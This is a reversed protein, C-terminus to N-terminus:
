KIVIIGANLGRRGNTYRHSFFIDHYKMTCLKTQYINRSKLGANVLILENLNWLNLMYRDRIKVTRFIEYPVGLRTLTIGKYEAPMGERYVSGSHIIYKFDDNQLPEFTVNDETTDLYPCEVMAKIVTEDVEYNEPGISPGIIAHINEPLCGYVEGMKEVTKAAIADVTGRWGAHVTGIVRSVPDALLIPVCDATYVILPINKVNTIQADIEFHSLDRSIGDGADKEEVVLINSKHVQNPASMRTYDFGMTAGLRQYNEMVDEKEDDLHLGMNLSEYIGKSVGGFKTTFGHQIFSMDSFGEVQIFPVGDDINLTMNKSSHIGLYNTDILKKAEEKNM